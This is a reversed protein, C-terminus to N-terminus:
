LESLYLNKRRCPEEEFLLKPFDFNTMCFPIAIESHFGRLFEACFVVCKQDQPGCILQSESFGILNPSYGIGHFLFLLFSLM